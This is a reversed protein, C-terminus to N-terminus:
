TTARPMPRRPNAPLRLNSIVSSTAPSIVVRSASNIVERANSTVPSIAVRALSIVVKVHKIAARVIIDVRVPSIVRKSSTVRPLLRSKERIPSVLVISWKKM